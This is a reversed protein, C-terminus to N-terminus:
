DRLMIELKKKGNGGKLYLERRKADKRYIFTEYHILKFHSHYKTSRVFGGEHAKIRSQLNETYGTYLKGDKLSHLVYICYM